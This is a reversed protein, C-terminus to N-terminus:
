SSAPGPNSAPDQISAATLKSPTGTLVAYVQDGVKISGASRVRGGFKTSGTIAATVSPGSGGITISTTSVATVAGVVQAELTGNGNGTVPSPTPLGGRSGGNANGGPGTSSSAAAPSAGATTVPWRLLALAIAVGAAAAVVAVALTVWLSNGGIVHGRFTGGGAGGAGDASGAGGPSGAGGAAPESDAWPDEDPEDFREDGPAVHWEEPGDM